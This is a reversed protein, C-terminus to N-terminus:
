YLSLDTFDKFRASDRGEQTIDHFIVELIRQPYKRKFEAYVEPDSEGTDGVLIFKRQPYAAFLREIAQRKHRRLKKKGPIFDRLDTAERLHFSGRPFNERTFFAQLAPYLQLPSASVYHFADAKERLRALVPAIGTVAKYENLFTNILLAKKDLVNSDKVTDDIDLIVSVGEPPAYFAVGEAVNEPFEPQAVAFRIEGPPIDPKKLRVRQRSKGDRTKPMAHVSGDVVFRVAFTKDGEFDIRFLASREDLRQQQQATVEAMGIGTLALFLPTLLPRAEKEYVFASIEVEIEDKSADYAIGPLFCVYEDAKLEASPAPLAIALTLLLLLLRM